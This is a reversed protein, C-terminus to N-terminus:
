LRWVNPGVTIGAFNDGKVGLIEGFCFSKGEEPLGFSHFQAVGFHALLHIRRIVAVAPLFDLLGPFTHRGLLCESAVPIIL